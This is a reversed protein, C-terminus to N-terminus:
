RMPAPDCDTEPPPLTTWVALANRPNPNAGWTPSFRPPKLIAAVYWTIVPPSMTTAVWATPAGAGVSTFSVFFKKANSSPPVSPPARRYRDAM